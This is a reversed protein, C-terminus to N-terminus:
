EESWNTHTTMFNTIIQPISGFDKYSIRLLLYNNDECFKNKIQDRKQRKKLDEDGGWWKVSKFHQAGNYEIFIPDDNIGSGDWEFIIFDFRLNRGTEKKLKCFPTNFSYQINMSNLIHKVAVEGFSGQEVGTCFRLHSWINGQTTGRTAKSHSM